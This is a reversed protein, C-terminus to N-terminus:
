DRESHPCTPTHGPDGRFEPVPDFAEDTLSTGDLESGYDALSRLWTIPVEHGCTPCTGLTFIQDPNNHAAVFRHVTGDPETVTLRPWPWQGYARTYDPTTEVKGRTIGLLDALERASAEARRSWLEDSWTPPNTADQRRQAAAKLARATIGAPKPTPDSQTM